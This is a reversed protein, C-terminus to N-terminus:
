KAAIAPIPIANAVSTGPEFREGLLGAITQALQQQYWQQEERVEGLAAIHPGIVALWTESSGRIMSGHSTWRSRRKGRGHDTTILITTNNKYGPTTQVWHWLEGIMQDIAHAQQLYLDYRGQHAYEDTEGLGLFLIRPSYQQMYEKASIFTLQDYRTHTKNEIAEEQVRNIIVQTPSSAAAPEYGSNVPLGNRKENLIYPFVDWSSFAAVKGAFGPKANLYELVNINPNHYKRNTAVFPDTTGTLIENYGPYSIAYTNAVNVKNNHLRNGYVQGKKAVLSWFFPMLKQRKETATTGGYLINITSPDPTESEDNMLLSDAGTFVEQWRLGDITIIILNGSAPLPAPPPAPLNNTHPQMTALLLVSVLINKM